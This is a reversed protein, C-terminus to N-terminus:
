LFLISPRKGYVRRFTQFFLIYCNEVYIFSFSTNCGFRRLKISMVRLGRWNLCPYIKSMKDTVLIKSVISVDLGTCIQLAILDILDRLCKFTSLASLSKFCKPM